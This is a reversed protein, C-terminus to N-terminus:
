LLLINIELEGENVLNPRLQLTKIKATSSSSSTALQDWTKEVNVVLVALLLLLLLLLLFLDTILLTFILKEIEKEVIKM